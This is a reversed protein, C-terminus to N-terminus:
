SITRGARPTLSREVLGYVAYLSLAVILLGGLALGLRNNRRALRELGSLGGLLAFTLALVPLAGLWVLGSDALALGTFIYDGLGGAGIFAGAVIMAGAYVAATRVGALVVPFALPLEVNWLIQASTMGMGRAADRIAPSVQIIGIYTNLVVPFLSYIVAAALASTEGLGLLPLLLGLLVLSPVTQVLALVANVPGALKRLRTLLIGLPLGLLLALGLAHLTLSLFVFTKPWFSDHSNVWARTLKDFFGVAFM